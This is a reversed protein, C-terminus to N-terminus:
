KISEPNTLLEVMMSYNDDDTDIQFIIKEFHKDIIYKYNGISAHGGKTKCRFKHNVEWGIIQITDLKTKICKISDVASHIRKFNLKANNLHEKWEKEYEYYKRDSRSSSYYSPPGWIEMHEQANKAKEIHKKTEKFFASAAIAYGWCEKNNLTTNKAEKVITEIPEYSEYDYLTKFLEARILENAKEENSKENVTEKSAGCGVVDLLALLVFSIICKRM